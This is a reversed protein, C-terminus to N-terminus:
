SKSMTWKQYGGEGVPTPRIGQAARLAAPRHGVDRERPDAPADRAGGDPEVDDLPDVCGDAHSALGQRVLLLPVELLKVLGPGHMAM